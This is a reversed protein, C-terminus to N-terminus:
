AAPPVGAGPLSHSMADFTDSPWTEGPVPPGALPPNEPPKPAVM